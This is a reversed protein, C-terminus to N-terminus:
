YSLCLLLKLEADVYSKVPMPTNKELTGPYKSACIGPLRIIGGTFEDVLFIGHIGVKLFM